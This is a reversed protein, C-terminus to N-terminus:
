LKMTISKVVICSQAWEGSQNGSARHGGARLTHSGSSTFTYTGSPNSGRIKWEGNGNGWDEWYQSKKWEYDDFKMWASHTDGSFNTDGTIEVIASKYGNLNITFTKEGSDFDGDGSNGSLSEGAAITGTVYKYDIINTNSVDCNNKTSGTAVVVGDELTQKWQATLTIGSTCSSNYSFPAADTYTKGNLASCSSAKWGDFEYGSEKASCMNAVKRLTIDTGKYVPQILNANKKTNGTGCSFTITNFPKKKWQAYLTVSSGDTPLTIKDGSKLHSNCTKSGKCWGDFDYNARTFTNTRITYQTGGRVTESDMTGSGGNKDYYINSSPNEKYTAYLTISEGSGTYGNPVSYKDGGLGAKYATGGSCVNSATATIAAGLAKNQKKTCWYGSFRYGAWDTKNSTDFSRNWGAIMKVTYEAKKPDDDPYTPKGDSGGSAAFLKATIYHSEVASPTIGETAVDPNYLRTVTSITTPTNSGAGYWCTRIYFDYYASKNKVEGADVIKTEKNKVAVIYIGEVSKINSGTDQGMLSNDNDDSYIIRPYTSAPKFKDKDYPVIIEDVSGSSLKRTNIIFAKQESLFNDNGYIDASCDNVNYTINDEKAAVAHSAIKQWLESDTGKDGLETLATAQIFRLAEAQADIEERAVTNELTSQAGSSGSSVVAVIAVAVMSFIGIAITVEVLTDGLKKGVRTM